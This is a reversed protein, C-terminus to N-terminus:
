TKCPSVSFFCSAHESDSPYTEFCLAVKCCKCMTNIKKNDCWICNKRHDPGERSRKILLPEHFGTVRTSDKLCTNLTRRMPIPQRFVELPMGGNGPFGLQQILMEQFSLLTYGCDSRDLNRSDRYLTHINVM